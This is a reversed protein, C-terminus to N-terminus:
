LWDASSSRLSECLHYGVFLSQTETAATVLGSCTGIEIQKIIEDCDYCKRFLM